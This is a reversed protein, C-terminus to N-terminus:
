EDCILAINSTFVALMKTISASTISQIMELCKNAPCQSRKNNWVEWTKRFRWQARIKRQGPVWWLNQSGDWLGRYCWVAPPTQECQQGCRTENSELFWRCTRWHSASCPVFGSGTWSPSGWVSRPSNIGSLTVRWFTATECHIQDCELWLVSTYM